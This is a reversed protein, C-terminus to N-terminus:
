AAKVVEIRREAATALSWEELLRGYATREIDTFPRGWARRALARIDENM